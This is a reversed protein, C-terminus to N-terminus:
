QLELFNFVRIYSINQSFPTTILQVGACQPPHDFQTHMIPKVVKLTIIHEELSESTWNSFVYVQSKSQVALISFSLGSPLLPVCNGCIDANGSNVDM